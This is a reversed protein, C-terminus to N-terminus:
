NTGNLRALLVTKNGTVPLNRKRLEDKLQLVTWAATCVVKAESEIQSTSKARKDVTRARKVIEGGLAAATCSPTPISFTSMNNNDDHPDQTDVDRELRRKRVKVVGNENPTGTGLSQARM